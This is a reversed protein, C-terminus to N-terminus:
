RFSNRVLSMVDPPIQKSKSWRPNEFVSRAQNPSLFLLGGKSPVGILRWLRSVLRPEGLDAWAADLTEYTGGFFRRGIVRIGNEEIVVAFDCAMTFVVWVVLSEAVGYATAIAVLVGISFHYHVSGWWVVYFALAGLFPLTYAVVLLFTRRQPYRIVTGEPM